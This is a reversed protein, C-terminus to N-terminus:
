RNGNYVRCRDAFEEGKRRSVPIKVGDCMTICGGDLKTFDKIHLLNILHSKHVRVFHDASFKDEFEKLTKSITM